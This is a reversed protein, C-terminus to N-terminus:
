KDFFLEKGEDTKVLNLVHEVQAMAEQKSKHRATMGNSFTFNYFPDPEDKIFESPVPCVDKGNYMINSLGQNNKNPVITLGEDLKKLEEAFESTLQQTM